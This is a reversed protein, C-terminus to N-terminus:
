AVASPEGPRSARSGTPPRRHYHQVRTAAGSPPQVVQAGSTPNTSSGTSTALSVHPEQDGCRNTRWLRHNSCATGQSAGLATLAPDAHAPLSVSRAFSFVRAGVSTASLAPGNDGCGNTSRWMWQSADRRRPHEPEPRVVPAAPEGAAYRVAARSFRPSRRPPGLEASSSFSGM